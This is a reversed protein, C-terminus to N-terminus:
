KGSQPFSVDPQRFAAGRIAFPQAGTIASIAATPQVDQLNMQAIADSTALSLVQGTLRVQKMHLQYVAGTPNIIEAIRGGQGDSVTVRLQAPELPSRPDGFVVVLRGELTAVSGVQARANFDTATTTFFTGPRTPEDQGMLIMTGALVNVLLMLFVLVFRTKM